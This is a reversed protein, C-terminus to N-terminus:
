FVLRLLNGFLRLISAFMELLQYLMWYVLSFLVISVIQSMLEHKELGGLLFHAPSRHMTAHGSHFVLNHHHITWLFLAIFGCYVALVFGWNMDM